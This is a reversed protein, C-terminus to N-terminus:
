SGVRSICNPCIGHTFQADTQKKIYSEIEDWYGRDDRVRKCYACIPLLGQLTRVDSLATALASSVRRLELLQVVQRALARLAAAQDRGLTRPERDVVCLAGVSYGEPTVLPMGAYFRIHPPLITLPGEAFRPDELADRVAMMEHGMVTHACFAIDRRTQSEDVGVKSKFWQREKDVLSIMAMPTACIYSALRTIDDYDQEPSTDLIRYRHLAQLREDENSPRPAEM